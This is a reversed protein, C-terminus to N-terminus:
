VHHYEDIIFYDFDIKSLKELNKKRSATQVTSFIFRKDYDKSEKNVFGIDKIISDGYVKRFIDVAQDLIEQRHVLYLLRKPQCKKSHFAALYTKGSGSPLVVLAKSKNQQISEQLAKIAKTQHPFELSM